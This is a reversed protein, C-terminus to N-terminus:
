NLMIFMDNNFWVLLFFLPLILLTFQRDPTSEWNDDAPPNVMVYKFDYTTGAFNQLSKFHAPIFQITMPIQIVPFSQRAM